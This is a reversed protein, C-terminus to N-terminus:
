THSYTFDSAGCASIKWNMRIGGVHPNSIADTRSILDLCICQRHVAVVGETRPQEVFGDPSVPGRYRVLQEVPCDPPRHPVEEILSAVSQVVFNSAVFLGASDSM